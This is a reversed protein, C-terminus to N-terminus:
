EPFLLEVALSAQNRALDAVEVRLAYRGPVLVTPLEVLIRDRPLDPEVVWPKGDLTARLTAPDIGSGADALGIAIVEWRPM